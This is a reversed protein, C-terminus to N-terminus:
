PTVINIDLTFVDMLGFFRKLKAVDGGVQLMGDKVLNDVRM